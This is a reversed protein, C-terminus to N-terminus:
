QLWYLSARGHTRHLLVPIYVPLFRRTNSRPDQDRELIAKGSAGFLNGALSLTQPLFLTVRKANDDNDDDDDNSFDDVDVNNNNNNNYVVRVFGNKSFFRLLLWWM